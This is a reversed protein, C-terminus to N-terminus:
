LIFDIRQINKYKCDNFYEIAMSKKEESAVIGFRGSTFNVFITGNQCFYMEGGIYAQGDIGTINTHCVFPKDPRMLKRKINSTMEWLIKISVTDIVWLFCKLPFSNGKKIQWNEIEENTLYLGDHFQKPLGDDRGDFILDIFLDNEKEGELVHTERSKGEQGDFAYMLPALRAIHHPQLVPM